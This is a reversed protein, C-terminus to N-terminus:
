WRGRSSSGAGSVGCCRPVPLRATNNPVRPMILWIEESYATPVPPKVSEPPPDVRLSIEKKAVTIEVSLFYM